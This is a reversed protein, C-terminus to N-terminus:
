ITTVHAFSEASRYIDLVAMAAREIKDDEEETLKKTIFDGNTFSVPRSV